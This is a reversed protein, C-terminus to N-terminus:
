YDRSQIFLIHMELFQMNSPFEIKVFVWVIAASEYWPTNLVFHDDPGPCGQRCEEPEPGTM